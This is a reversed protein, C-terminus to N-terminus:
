HSAVPAPEKKYGLNKRSADAWDTLTKKDQDSLKSNRHILLYKSDPMNGSTIQEVIDGLRTDQRRVPYTGWESLNMMNRAGKVDFYLVWSVPAVHSYWPWKTLSSHCDQCSREIIAAVQPPVSTTAALTKSADVPPNTRPVPILQAVVLIVVLSWFIRRLWKKM